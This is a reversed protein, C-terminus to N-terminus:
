RWYIILLVPKQKGYAGKGYALGWGIAWYSVGGIFADLMNKILINVTNKSRLFLETIFCTLFSDFLSDEQFSQDILLGTIICHCCAFCLCSSSSFSSYLSHLAHQLLAIKQWRM